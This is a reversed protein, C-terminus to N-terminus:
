ARARAWVCVCTPGKVHEFARMSDALRILQMILSPKPAISETPRRSPGLHGHLVRLHTQFSIGKLFQTKHQTDRSVLVFKPTAHSFSLHQM